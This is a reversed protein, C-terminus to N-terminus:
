PWPECFIDHDASRRSLQIRLPDDPFAATHKALKPLRVVAPDVPDLVIPQPGPNQGVFEHPGPLAKSSRIVSVTEVLTLADRIVLTLPSGDNQEIVTNATLGWVSNSKYCVRIEETGKGEESGLVWFNGGNGGYADGIGRVRLVVGKAMFLFFFLM